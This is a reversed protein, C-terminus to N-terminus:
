DDGEVPRGSDPTHEFAQQGLGAGRFQDQHDIVAPGLRRFRDDLIIRPWPDNVPRHSVVQARGPCCGIAELPQHIFAAVPEVPPIVIVRGVEVVIEFSDDGLDETIEHYMKHWAYRKTFAEVQQGSYGGVTKLARTMVKTAKQEFALAEAEMTRNLDDENGSKKGLLRALREHDSADSALGALAEHVGLWHDQPAKPTVDLFAARAFTSKKAVELAILARVLAM